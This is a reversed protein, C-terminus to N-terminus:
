FYYDYKIYGRYCHHTLHTHSGASITVTQQNSMYDDGFTLFDDDDWVRIKFTKWADTGFNLWQNWTPNHNGNRTSTVKRVSTGDHRYVIIEVYPDSDNWLGDEDPLNHGTRVYFQINATKITCDVGTWGDPCLYFDLWLYGNCATDSCHKVNFQTGSKAEFTESISMYDDGFTLFNDDDWIRVRFSRWHQVGFDLHENWSPSQTGSKVSTQKHLTGSSHYASIKVYPDPANLWPDTDPLNTATKVKIVLRRHVGTRPCNYLLRAQQIDRSSLGNRQGVTPSGQSAYAAQNTVQLTNCSGCNSFANLSYHMISGYDYGVGLSNVESQRRKMFNHAFKPVINGLNVSVYSDRDPRSQEHWFGIAHGFEHIVTGRHDATNSQVNLIQAGGIKGVSSYYGGANWQRVRIYDRTTSSKQIFLLCTNDEWHDMADRIPYAVANSINTDLKYYVIGNQWHALVSSIAAREERTRLHFKKGTTKEFDTINYYQRIMEEPIIIDGEFLEQGDPVDM